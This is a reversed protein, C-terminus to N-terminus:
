PLLRLPAPLCGANLAEAIESAQEKTFKGDITGKNSIVSAIRPANVLEGDLIIGLRYKFHESLDPLHEGTLKAMLKGGADNLRFNVCPGDNDTGVEAKTIYEDTVNYSDALVLVELSEGPAWPSEKRLVIDKFDFAEIQKQQIPVWSALKNFKRHPTDYVDITVADKRALEIISGDKHPNAMIRFEVMGPRSLLREVRQRNADSTRLVDVDLITPGHGLVRVRALKEAGLNLKRDIAALLKDTTTGKPIPTSSGFTTYLLTAGLPKDPEGRNPSVDPEPAAEEKALRREAAARDTIARLRDAESATGNKLQEGRYKEVDLRNELLKRLIAIRAAKTEAM